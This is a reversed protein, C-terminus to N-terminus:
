PAASPRLDIWRGMTQDYEGVLSQNGYQDYAYMQAGDPIRGDSMVREPLGLREDATVGIGSYPWHSVTREYGSVGASQAASVMGDATSQVAPDHEGLMGPGDSYPAGLPTSYRALDDAPFRMVYVPENSDTLNFRTGPYDLRNGRIVDGNSHLNVGDQQRAVFGGMRNPDFTWGDVDKTRTINGLYDNAAGQPMAKQMPTDSEITVLKQMRAMLQRQELTLSGAGAVNGPVPDQAMKHLADNIKAREDPTFNNPGNIADRWSPRSPDGGAVAPPGAPPPAQGSSSPPAGVPGTSGSLATQGRGSTGETSPAMGKPGGPPSHMSSEIDKFTAAHVQDAERMATANSRLRQGHGEETDAMISIHGPVQQLHGDIVNAMGSALSGLSSPAMSNGQASSAISRLSNAHGSLATGATQIQEHPYRM